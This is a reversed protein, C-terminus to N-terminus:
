TVKKQFNSVVGGGGGGGGTISIVNSWVGKVCIDQASGYPRWMANHLM